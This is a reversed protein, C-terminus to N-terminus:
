VPVDTVRRLFEKIRNDAQNERVPVEPMRIGVTNDRIRSFTRDTSSSKGYPLNSTYITPLKRDNRTRYDILRFLVESVWEQKESQAGWDDLILLGCERVAELDKSKNKVMDVYDVATVFKVVSNNKRVIETAICCALMTKGCGKVSSYIYLGLGEDYWKRFNDIFSKVIAENDSTNVGYIDWRFASMGVTYPMWSRSLRYEAFAGSDPYFFPTTRIGDVVYDVVWGKGSEGDYREVRAVEALVDSGKWPIERMQGIM